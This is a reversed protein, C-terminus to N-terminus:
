MFFYLDQLNPMTKDRDTELINQLYKLNIIKKKIERKYDM